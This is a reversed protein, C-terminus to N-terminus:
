PNTYFTYENDMYIGHIIYLNSRTNVRASSGANQTRGVSRYSCHAATAWCYYYICVIRLGKVPWHIRIHTYSHFAFRKVFGIGFAEKRKNEKIKNEGKNKSKNEERESQEKAGSCLLSMM